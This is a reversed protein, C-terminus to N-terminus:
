IAALAPTQRITLVTLANNAPHIADYYCETGHIKDLVCPADIESRKISTIGRSDEPM